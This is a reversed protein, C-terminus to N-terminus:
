KLNLRTSSSLLTLLQNSCLPQLPKCHGQSRCSRAAAQRERVVGEWQAQAERTIATGGVRREAGAAGGEWGLSQGGQGREARLLLKILRRRCHAHILHVELHPVLGCLHALDRWSSLRTTKIESTGAARERCARRGGEM